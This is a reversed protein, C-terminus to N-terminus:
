DSELLFHLSGVTVKWLSYWLNDSVKELVFPKKNFELGSAGREIEKQKMEDILREGVVQHFRRM